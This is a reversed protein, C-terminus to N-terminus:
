EVAVKRKFFFDMRARIEVMASFPRRIKNFALM